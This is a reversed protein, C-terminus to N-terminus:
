ETNELPRDLADSLEQEWSQQPRAHFEYKSIPTLEIDWAIESIGAEDLKKVATLFGGLKMRLSFCRKRGREDEPFKFAVTEGKGVRELIEWFRVPYARPDKPQGPM